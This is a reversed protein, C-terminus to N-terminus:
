RRRRKDDRKVLLFVNKGDREEVLEKDFMRLAFKRPRKRGVRIFVADDDIVRTVTCEGLAPHQLIDGVEVELDDDDWEEDDAPSLTSKRPTLPSESRPRTAKLAEKDEARQATQIAADWASQPAPRAPEDDVDDGVGFRRPAAVPEAVPPPEM